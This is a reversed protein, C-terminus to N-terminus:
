PRIELALATDLSAVTIADYETMRPRTSEPYSAYAAATWSASADPLFTVVTVFHSTKRVLVVAYALYTLDLYFSVAGKQSYPRWASNKLSTCATGTAM